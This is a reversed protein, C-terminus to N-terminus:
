NQIAKGDTRPHFGRCKVGATSFRLSVNFTEYHRGSGGGSGGRGPSGRGGATRGVSIQL